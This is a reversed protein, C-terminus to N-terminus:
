EETWYVGMRFTSTNSAIQKLYLGEGPRIVIPKTRSVHSGDHISQSMAETSSQATNIQELWTYLLVPSADTIGTPTDRVEAVSAPDTSDYKVPTLLNGGTVATALRMEFPIVVTAGTSSPVVAWVEYVRLVKGSGTPNLISLMSKNNAGALASEVAYTAREVAQVVSSIRGNATPKYNTEFDSKDSNNQSQSVGSETPVTGKYIVYELYLSAGDLAYIRYIVGDDDYQLPLNKTTLVISKFSAWSSPNIVVLGSGVSIM